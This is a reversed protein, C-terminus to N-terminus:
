RPKVESQFKSMAWVLNDKPHEPCYRDLWVNMEEVERLHDQGLFMAVHKADLKPKNKLYGECTGSNQDQTTQASASWSFTALVLALAAKM